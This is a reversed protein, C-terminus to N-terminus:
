EFKQAGIKDTDAENLASERASAKEAPPSPPLLAGSSRAATKRTATQSM